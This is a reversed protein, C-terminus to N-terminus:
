SNNAEEPVLLLCFYNDKPMNDTVTRAQKKHIGIIAVWFCGSQKRGAGIKSDNERILLGLSLTVLNLPCEYTDTHHASFPGFSSLM